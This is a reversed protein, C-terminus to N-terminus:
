KVSGKHGDSVVRYVKTDYKRRVRRECLMRSHKREDRQCSRLARGLRRRRQSSGISRRNNSRGPTNKVFSSTAFTETVTQGFTAPEGSALECQGAECGHSTAMSPFGGDVRADYLHSANDLGPLLSESTQMYVDTLNESAGVLHTGDTIGNENLVEKGLGSSLLYLCGTDVAAYTASSETCGNTGVEEWEYVDMTENTDQPVLTENTEFVARTGDDAIFPPSPTHYQQEGSDLTFNDILQARAEHLAPPLGSTDCSICTVQGTDADYVYAEFHGANEYDTLKASDIFLLHSGNSAGASAVPMNRTLGYSGEVLGGGITGTRYGGNETEPILKTTTGEEYLHIGEEPGLYYVRSGNATFTLLTGEGVETTQGTALHYEFIEGGGTTFIKEEEGPGIGARGAYGEGPLRLTRGHMVDRLFLGTESQNCSVGAFSADPGPSSFVVNAGSPAIAGYSFEAKTHPTSGVGDGVEAGCIPVEGDPLIGVLYTHGDAHEYIENSAEHTDQPTSSATAFRATTVFFSRSGDTSAGALFAGWDNVAALGKYGSPQEIMEQTLVGSDPLSLTEIAGTTLSVEYVGMGTTQNLKPEELPDQFPSNLFARTFDSTFEVGEATEHAGTALAWDTPGEGQPQSIAQQSWGSPTRTALFREHLGNRGGEAPTPLLTNYYVHVGEPFGYSGIVNLTDGTNTESVIEFARCDPLWARFGPSVETTSPCKGQNADGAYAPYTGLWSGLTTSVLATLGLAVLRVRHIMEM